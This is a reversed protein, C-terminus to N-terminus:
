LGHALIISEDNFIVFNYSFTMWQSHSNYSVPYQLIISYISSNGYGAYFYILMLLSIFYLIYINFIFYLTLMDLLPKYFIITNEIFKYIYLHM